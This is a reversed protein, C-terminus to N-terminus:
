SSMREPKEREPREALAGDAAAVGAGGGGTAAGGGAGNGGIADRDVLPSPSRGETAGCTSRSTPPTGGAARARNSARKSVICDSIRSSVEWHRWNPWSRAEPKESESEKCSCSLRVAVASQESASLTPVAM